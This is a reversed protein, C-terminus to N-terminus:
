GHKKKAFEMNCEFGEASFLWIHFQIEFTALHKEDAIDLYDFTVRLPPANPFEQFEKQGHLYFLAATVLKFVHPLELMVPKPQVGAPLVYDFKATQQATWFSTMNGFIESELSLGGNKKNYGFRAATKTEQARKNLDDVVDEIPLSWTAVVNKAAGLGINVLPVAFAHSAPKSQGDNAMEVWHLALPSKIVSGDSLARFALSSIALEPHYSAKRQRAMQSVTLFTAIAALCAGLSAALAITQDITM